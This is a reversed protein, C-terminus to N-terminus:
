TRSIENQPYVTARSHQWGQQPVTVAGSLRMPREDIMYIYSALRLWVDWQQVNCWCLMRVKMFLLIPASKLLAGIRATLAAKSGPGAAAASGNQQVIPRQLSPCLLRHPEARHTCM